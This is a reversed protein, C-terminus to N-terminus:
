ALNFQLYSRTKEIVCKVCNRVEFQGFSASRVVRGRVYSLFMLKHNTWPRQLGVQNIRMLAAFIGNEQPYTHKPKQLLRNIFILELRAWQFANGEWTSQAESINECCKLTQNSLQIFCRRNAPTQGWLSWRTPNWGANNSESSYYIAARAEKVWFMWTKENALLSREYSSTASSASFHLRM